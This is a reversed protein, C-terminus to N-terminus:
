EHSLLLARAIFAFGKKLGKCSYGVCDFRLKHVGEYVKSKRGLKESRM